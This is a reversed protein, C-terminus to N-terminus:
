SEEKLGSAYARQAREAAAICTLPDLGYARMWRLSSVVLNGLEREMDARRAPECARALDGGIRLLAALIDAPESPLAISAARRALDDLTPAPAGPLREGRAVRAARDMGAEYPGIVDADATEEIDRAIQQRLQREHAPLVAALTARVWAEHSSRCVESDDSTRNDIHWQEHADAALTLLADPVDPGPATPQDSGVDGMWQVGDATQHIPGDHGARLVCPGLHYSPNDGLRIGRTSAGCTEAPHPTTHTRQQQEDTRREAAEARARWHDIDDQMRQATDVEVALLAPEVARLALDALHDSGLAHTLDDRLAALDPAPHNPKDTM